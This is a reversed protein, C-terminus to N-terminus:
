WGVHKKIKSSNQIWDGLDQIINKDEQDSSTKKEADEVRLIVEGLEVVDGSRLRAEQVPVGNVKLGNSSGLDTIVFQGCDLKKLTAHRRSVTPHSIAVESSDRGLVLERVGAWEFLQNLNIKM